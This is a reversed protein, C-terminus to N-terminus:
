KKSSSRRKSPMSHMATVGCADWEPPLGMLWRSHAPNLQGGSEMGASSGTLLGGSVTLRAPLGTKLMDVTKRSSDNNGAENNGNRAPTGAMPTPWGALHEAVSPLSPSFQGVGETHHDRAKPTPRGSLWAQRPVTDDRLKGDQRHM